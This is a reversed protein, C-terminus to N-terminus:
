GAEAWAKCDEFGVAGSWARPVVVTIQGVLTKAYEKDGVLCAFKAFNNINWQDPYNKLVDMIGQKMDPWRVESVQFMAEGFQSQEMSWYIRAYLGLGDTAKTRMVANRAFAEIATPDGGWKPAYHFAIEFYLPYYGHHLDLARDAAADYDSESVQSENLFRLLLAHYRPDGQLFNKQEDLFNLTTQLRDYFPQWNEKLVTNAYGDGRYSWAHGHLMHAYALRANSSNPYKARWRAIMEDFVKWEGSEPDDIELVDSLASDFHSINWLGSPSRKDTTMFGNAMAELGDFDGTEFRGLVELTIQGRKAMEATEARSLGASEFIVCAAVAIFRLWYLGVCM